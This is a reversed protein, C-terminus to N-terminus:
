NRKATSASKALEQSKAQFEKEVASDVLGDKSLQNFSRQLQDISDCARLKGVARFSKSFSAYSGECSHKRCLDAPPIRGEFAKRFLQLGTVREIYSPPVQFSSLPAEETIPANPLAFCALYTSRDEKEGLLCKFLHTPVAVDHEGIVSYSVRRTGDVGILPVFMPGTLVWLGRPFEKILKKTMSEVRYWDCANCTMDQPVINASLNFTENMETQSHKHFQAPALHGRSLGRQYSYDETRPRISLPVSEDSYFKSGDRKGKADGAGGQVTPVFRELVWNPIRREYNMSTLYGEMARVHDTGPVGWQAIPNKSVDVSASRELQVEKTPPALPPAGDHQNKKEMMAGFVGGFAASVVSITLYIGNM